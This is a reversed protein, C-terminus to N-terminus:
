SKSSALMAASMAVLGAKIADNSKIFSVAKEKAARKQERTMEKSFGFQQKALNLVFNNVTDDHAPQVNAPGNLTTEEDDAFSHFASIPQDLAATKLAALRDDNLAALIKSEDNGYYALAEDMSSFATPPTFEVGIKVTDFTNLDFVNKSLIM